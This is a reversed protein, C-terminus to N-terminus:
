KFIFYVSCSFYTDPLWWLDSLCDKHGQTTSLRQSCQWTQMLFRLKLLAALPFELFNKLHGFWAQWVILALQVMPLSVLGPHLPIVLFTELKLCCMMFAMAKIESLLWFGPMELSLFSLWELQLNAIKLHGARYESAM